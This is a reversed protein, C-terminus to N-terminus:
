PPPPPPPPPPPLPPLSIAVMSMKPASAAPKHSNWFAYGGWAGGLVLVAVGANVLARHREIWSPPENFLDDHMRRPFTEEARPRRRRWVWRRSGWGGSWM